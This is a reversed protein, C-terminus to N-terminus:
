YQLYYVGPASNDSNGQLFDVNPLVHSCYAHSHKNLQASGLFGHVANGHPPTNGLSCCHVNCSGEKSLHTSHQVTRWLGIVELTGAPGTSCTHPSHVCHLFQQQDKSAQAERLKSLHTIFPYFFQLCLFSVWETDKGWFVKKNVKLLLHSWPLGQEELM